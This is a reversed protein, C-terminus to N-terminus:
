KRERRDREELKQAGGEGDKWGVMAMAVEVKGSIILLLFPTSFALRYFTM